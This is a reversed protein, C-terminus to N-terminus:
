IMSIAFKQKTQNFPSDSPSVTAFVKSTRWHVIMAANRSLIAKVATAGSTMLVPFSQRFM